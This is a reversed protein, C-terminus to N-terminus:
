EKVMFALSGGPVCQIAHGTQANLEHLWRSVGNLGFRGYDHWAIVGGRRCCALAHQTDSRVYEYSHAGDVFFLDVSDHYPTYDFTASDGFLPKIRAAEPTGDFLYTDLAVSHEIHRDDMWTTRLAPQKPQKPLDLTFVECSEPANLAFHWATYGDLTGIEFVRRPRLARALLCLSVIDTAYSSVSHLWTRNRALGGLRVPEVDACALVEHVNKQPLGRSGNITAQLFLTESWVHLLQRPRTIHRLSAVSGGMLGARAAVFASRVLDSTDRIMASLFAPFTVDARAAFQRTRGDDSLDACRTMM